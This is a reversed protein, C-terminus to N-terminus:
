EKVGVAADICTGAIDIQDRKRIAHVQVIAPYKRIGGIADHELLDEGAVNIESSVIPHFYKEVSWEGVITDVINHNHHVVVGVAPDGRVVESDVLIGGRLTHGAICVPVTGRVIREIRIDASCLQIHHVVDTESEAVLAGTDTRVRHRSGIDRLTGSVDGPHSDTGFGGPLHFVLGSSVGLPGGGARNGGGLSVEGTQVAVCLIGDAHACQAAAGIHAKPGIQDAETRLASGDRLNREGLIEFIGASDVAGALVVVDEAPAAVSRIGGVVDINGAARGVRVATRVVQIEVVGGAAEVDGNHRGDVRANGDVGQHHVEPSATGTAAAHQLHAHHGIIRVGGGELGNVGDVQRAHVSVSVGFLIHLEFVILTRAGIDGETDGIRCAAAEVDVIDRHVIRGLAGLDVGQLDGVDGAGRGHNVPRITREAGNVAVREFVGLSTLLVPSRHAGQVGGGVHQAAKFGGGVVIHAHHDVAFTGQATLPHHGGEM